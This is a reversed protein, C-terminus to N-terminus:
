VNFTGEVRGVPSLTFSKLSELQIGKDTVHMICKSIVFKAETLKLINQINTHYQRHWSFTFTFM